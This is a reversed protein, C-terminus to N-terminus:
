SGGSRVEPWFLLPERETSPNGDVHLVQLRDPLLNVWVLHCKAALGNEEVLLWADRLREELTDRYFALPDNDRTKKNLKRDQKDPQLDQSDFGHWPKSKVQRDPLTSIIIWWAPLEATSAAQAQIVKSFYRVDKAWLRADSSNTSEYEIVAVVREVDAEMETVCLDPVFSTVLKREINTIYRVPVSRSIAAWLRAHLRCLHNYDADLFWDDTLAGIKWLRNLERALNSLLAELFDSPASVVQGEQESQTQTAEV